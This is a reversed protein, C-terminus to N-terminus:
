KVGAKPATTGSAPVVGGSTTPEPRRQPLPYTNLQRRGGQITEVVTMPQPPLEPTLTAMKADDPHGSCAACMIDANIVMAETLATIEEPDLAFVVEQIPKTGRTSGSILSDSTVPILRTTVPSVVVGNRAIVKVTASKQPVVQNHSTVLKTNEPLRASLGDVPLTALLDFRDGLKLSHIGKLKSVELTFSRKGPPIGAVLGPRTGEPLFDRQRFAYGTQKDRHVVRGIIKSIDTVMEPHLDEQKVWQVSLVGTEDYLHDRTIMTYAPIVVASVPVPVEGEHTNLKPRRFFPLDIQGTAQLTGVTGAGGVLLAFLLFLFLTLPSVGRRTAASAKM